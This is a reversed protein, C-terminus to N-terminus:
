RPLEAGARAYNVSHQCIVHLTDTLVDRTWRRDSSNGSMMQVALPCFEPLHCEVICLMVGTRAARCSVLPLASAWPCLKPLAVLLHYVYFQHVLFARLYLYKYSIPLSMRKILMFHQLTSLGWWASCCEASAAHNWAAMHRPSPNASQLLFDQIYSSDSCFCHFFDLFSNLSYAALM